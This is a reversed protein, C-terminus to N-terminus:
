VLETLLIFVGAREGYIKNANLTVVQQDDKYAIGTLADLVARCLKDLDPRVFPYIRKVTKPKALVFTLELQVAGDIPPKNMLKYTNGIDARWRKLERANTHLVNGNIVKLSGQPIPNGGVFFKGNTTIIANGFSGRTALHKM